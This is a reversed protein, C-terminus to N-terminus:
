IRKVYKAWKVLGYFGNRITYLLAKFPAFDEEVRFSDYRWKFKKTLLLKGLLGWPTRITALCEDLLYCDARESVNLWLAYDNNSGTNRIQMKGVKSADYMVTLYAPWCCKQMESYNIHEKGGIEVGRDHSQLNMLGYKTYSFAYGHEEMFRIQKELKDPAWVDGVDLFAMWRGRAEKLALNRLYASGKDYVSASISIRKDKGKLEMVKHITEDKSNDDTFLLEWNTYTQALVSRVSEAVFQAKDRSLMIISVLDNAM